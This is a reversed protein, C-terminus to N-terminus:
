RRLTRKFIGLYNTRSWGYAALPMLHAKTIISEHAYLKVIRDWEEGVEQDLFDPASWDEIPEARFKESPDGHRDLRYSGKIAHVRDPIRARPM